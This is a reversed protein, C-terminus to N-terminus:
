ARGGVVEDVVVLNQLKTRSFDWETRIPAEGKSVDGFACEVRLGSVDDPQEIGHERWLGAAAQALVVDRMVRALQALTGDPGLTAPRGSMAALAANRAIRLMSTIGPSPTM